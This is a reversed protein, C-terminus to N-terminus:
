YKTEDVSLMFENKKEERGFQISNLAIHTNSGLRSRATLDHSITGIFGTHIYEVQKTTKKKMVFVPFDRTGHFSGSIMM